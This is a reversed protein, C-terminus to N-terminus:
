TLRPAADDSCAGLLVGLVAMLFRAIARM